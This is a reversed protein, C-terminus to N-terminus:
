SISSSIARQHAVGQEAMAKEKVRSSRNMSLRIFWFVSGVFALYLLWIPLELFYNFHGVGEGVGRTPIRGIGLGGFPNYADRIQHHLSAVPISSAQFPYGVQDYPNLALSVTGSYFAGSLSFNSVRPSFTFESYSRLSLCWLIALSFTAGLLLRWFLRRYSM